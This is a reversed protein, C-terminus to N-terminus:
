ERRFGVIRVSGKRLVKLVVIDGASAKSYRNKFDAENLVPISNFAVIVDGEDLGAEHAPGGPWIDTVVVGRVGRIDMRRALDDTLTRVGIELSSSIPPPQKPRSSPTLPSIGISASLNLEAGRRIVTILVSKGPATEAVLRQLQSTSLVREGGYRVIIDEGKLGATAGPSKAEADTVIVGEKVNYYDQLVPSLEQIGAGLWGRVVRGNEILDDLVAKATDIPIAFGIGVSGGTPSAIAANIGIVRGLADLLPGGSNGKNIAADTQILDTYLIDEEELERHLASVVGVTLTHEFGYPSGMALTWSGVRVDGSNGLSVVNKDSLTNSKISIVALDTAPDAGVVTGKYQSRDPLRVTVNYASEVVHNNTLIYFTNGARRVITGSGSASVPIDRPVASRLDLSKGPNEGQPNQRFFRRFLERLSDEESRGSDKKGGMGQVVTISVVCPETKEAIAIFGDELASIVPSQAGSNPQPAGIERSTKGIVGFTLMMLLIVALM